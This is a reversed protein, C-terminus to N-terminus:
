SADYSVTSNEKRPLLGPPVDSVLYGGVLVDHRLVHLLLSGLVNPFIILYILFKIKSM